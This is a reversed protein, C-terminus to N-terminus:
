ALLRAAVLSAALLIGHLSVAGITLQIAPALKTPSEAYRLLDQVARLSLLAPSLAVSASWPLAGAIVTGILLYCWRARSAGPRVVWHHKGASEDAKRDPFQNIFLICTVLLAYSTVAILPLALFSRRQVFDTGVAILAFSAWVCAEGLGRSNLKLPLASYAWGIVLGAVGIWLLDPASVTTLWIGAAIVLAILLAGFAATERM